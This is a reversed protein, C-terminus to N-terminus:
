MFFPLRDASLLNAPRMNKYGLAYFYRSLTITHPASLSAQQFLGSLQQVQGRIRHRPHGPQFQHSRSLQTHLVVLSNQGIPALLDM